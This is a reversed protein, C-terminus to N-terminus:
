KGKKRDEIKAYIVMGVGLLALAIYMSFSELEYSNNKQEKHDEIKVYVLSGIAIVSLFLYMGLLGYDMNNVKRIKIKVEDSLIYGQGLRLLQLFVAGILTWISGDDNGFMRVLCLSYCYIKSYRVAM